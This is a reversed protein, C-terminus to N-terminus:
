KKNNLELSLKIATIIEDIIYKDPNNIIRNACDEAIRIIDQEILNDM